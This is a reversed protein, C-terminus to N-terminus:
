IAVHPISVRRIDFIGRPSKYCLKVHALLRIQLKGVGDGGDVCQVMYVGVVNSDV